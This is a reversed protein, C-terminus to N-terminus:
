NWEKYIFDINKGFHTASTLDTCGDYKFGHSKMTEKITKFGELHKLSKDYWYNITVYYLTSKSVNDAIETDQESYISFVVYNDSKSTCEQYYPKIDLEKFIDM